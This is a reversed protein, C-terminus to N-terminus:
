NKKQTFRKYVIRGTWESHYEREEQLEYKTEEGGLDIDVPLERITLPKHLGRSTFYCKENFLRADVVGKQLYKSLYAGISNIKQISKISIFGHSWIEAWKDKINDIFPINFFVGHYHVAGRKQFEVVAVYAPNFGLHYKLRKIFATWCLNAEKLTTINEAFTFTVFLDKCQYQGSNAAILRRIRLRARSISFSRRVKSRRKGTRKNRKLSGGYHVSKEFHYEEMVSGSIVAKYKSFNLGFKTSALLDLVQNEVQPPITSIDM